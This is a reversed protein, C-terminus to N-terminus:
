ILLGALRKLVANMPVAMLCVPLFPLVAAAVLWTLSKVDLPLFKMQYVNSVISFLSNTAEFAPSALANQSNERSSPLWTQSFQRGVREALAGYELTGHRWQELLTGCFVLLPGTFLVIVALVLSLVVYKYDLVSAGDDIVRNTVLGASICGLALAIVTWSRLSYGVFELGACHDPHVPLLHLNLRSILWLFRSWVCLRWLWSLLLAFLLPASVLAHWWGAPSFRGQSHADALQWARYHPPTVSVILTAVLLYAAVVIALEAVRSHHLRRTSAAIADFQAVDTERVMGCTLFYQAIATLRPICLNEAIVLLPLALLYRAYAAFDHLFAGGGTYFSSRGSAASLGAL